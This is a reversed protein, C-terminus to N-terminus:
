EIGGPGASTVGTEDEPKPKDFVANFAPGLPFRTEERSRVERLGAGNMLTRVQAPAMGHSAKTPERLHLRGGPRLLSAIREVTATREDVEVDHLANHIVVRDFTGPELDATEITGLVCRVQPFRRLRREAIRVLPPCRDLCVLAGERLRPALWRAIGGAGSGFDLVRESGRLPVSEAYDRYFSRFAMPGLHGDFLVFLFPPREFDM